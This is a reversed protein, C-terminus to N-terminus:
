RGPGGGSVRENPPHSAACHRCLDGCSCLGGALGGGCSSAFEPVLSAMGAILLLELATSSRHVFRNEAVSIAVNWISSFLNTEKDFPTPGRDGVNNGSGAAGVVVLKDRFQAGPVHGRKREQARVSLGALNNQQEAPLDEWRLAWHIYFCGDDDLPITRRIGGQGPIVLNHGQLEAKALDLNLREAALLIGTHWFRQKAEPDDIFPRCKRRVGDSDIELMTFGVKYANTRFLEIPQFLTIRSGDVERQPAALIVNRAERLKRAFVQDSTLGPEGPIPLIDREYNRDLFFIDFVVAKAGELALEEAAQGYLFRPLPFQFGGNTQLNFYDLTDDDVYVAGVYAPAKAHRAALRVRWDYTMREQRELFDFKPLMWSLAELLFILGVIGLTILVPVLRLLRSRM